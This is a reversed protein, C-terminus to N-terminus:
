HCFLKYQQCCQNWSTAIFFFRFSFFFHKNVWAHNRWFQNPFIRIVSLLSFIDSPLQCYTTPTKRTSNRRWLSKFFLVKGQFDRFVRQFKLNKEFEIYIRIISIIKKKIKRYIQHMRNSVCRTFSVKPQFLITSIAFNRWM